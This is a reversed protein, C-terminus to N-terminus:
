RLTAAAASKDGRERETLCREGVACNLSQRNPKEDRKEESKMRAQRPRVLTISGAPRGLITQGDAAKM